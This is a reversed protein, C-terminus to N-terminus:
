YGRRMLWWVAVMTAICVVSMILANPGIFSMATMVLSGLFPILAKQRWGYIMYGGAIGGWLCSAWLFNQSVLFGHNLTDVSRIHGWQRSEPLWKM